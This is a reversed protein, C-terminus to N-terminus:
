IMSCKKRQGTYMIQYTKRPTTKVPCNTSTIRLLSLSAMCPVKNLGLAGTPPCFDNTSYTLNLKLSSLSHFYLTFIELDLDLLSNGFLEMDANIIRYCNQISKLPLNWHSSTLSRLGPFSSCINLNHNLESDSSKYISLDLETVSDLKSGSIIIAYTSVTCNITLSTLNLSNELFIRAYQSEDIPLNFIDINIKSVSSVSAIDILLKFVGLCAVCKVDITEISNSNGSTALSYRSNNHLRKAEGKIIFNIRKLGTFANLIYYVTGGFYNGLFTVETIHETCSLNLNDTWNDNPKLIIVLHSLNKNCSQFNREYDTLNEVLIVSQKRTAEMSYLEYSEDDNQLISRQTQATLSPVLTTQKFTSGRVLLWLLLVVIIGFSCLLVLLCYIFRNTQRKRHQQSGSLLRNSEEINFVKDITNKQSLNEM